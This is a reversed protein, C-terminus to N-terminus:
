EAISTFDEKSSESKFDELIPKLNVKESRPAHRNILQELQSTRMRIDGNSDVNKCAELTARLDAVDDVHYIEGVVM